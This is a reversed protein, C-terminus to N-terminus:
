RWLRAVLFGVGTWFGAGIGITIALGFFAGWNILGTAHDDELYDFGSIVFIRPESDEGRILGKLDVNEERPLPPVVRIESRRTGPSPPTYSL